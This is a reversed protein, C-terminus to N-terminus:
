LRALARASSVRGVRQGCHSWTNAGLWGGPLAWLGEHPDRTRRVLPLVIAACDTVPDRRRRLSVEGSPTPSWDLEEFRASM